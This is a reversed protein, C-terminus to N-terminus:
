NAGKLDAPNVDEIVTIRTCEKPSLKIIKLWAIVTFECKGIIREEGPFLSVDALLEM